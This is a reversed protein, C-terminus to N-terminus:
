CQLFLLFWKTSTSSLLSCGVMKNEKYEIRYVSVRRRLSSFDSQNRKFSHWRLCFIKVAGGNKNRDRRFPKAFGDISFQGSSFSFDLKTETASLFDTNSTTIYKLQQFKNNIANINLNGFFSRKSNKTKLTKLYSSLNYLINEDNIFVNINQTDSVHVHNPNSTSLNGSTVIELNSEISVSEDHWFSKNSHSVFNQGLLFLGVKNLHM